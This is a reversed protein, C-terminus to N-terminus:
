VVDSVREPEVTTLGRLTTLSASEEMVPYAPADDEAPPEIGEDGKEEQLEKHQTQWRHWPVGHSNSAAPFFHSLTVRDPSDRLLARGVLLVSATLGILATRRPHTPGTLPHVLPDDSRGADLHLTAGRVVM